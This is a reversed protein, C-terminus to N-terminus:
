IQMCAIYSSNNSINKYKIDKATGHTPSLRRYNLGMTLNIGKKNILKFPILAQDHYTSIYLSNKKINNFASDAPFPGSVKKIKKILDAIIKDESGITEKEGCHPNYCLFKIHNFNLNYRKDDILRLLRIIVEKLNNKNLDLHIKKPNIHTTLPIVSFEEGHMLMITKKNNIKGLYETVGVFKINKKILSKNIPMTVLDTHSENALYNAINIQNILNKYKLSSINEINFINLSYNYCIDFDYPNIIENISIDSKIKYLYKKLNNLNGILIYKTKNKLVQFSNCILEINISDLDGLFVYKKKTNKNKM